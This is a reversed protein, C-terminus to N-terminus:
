SWTGLRMPDGPGDFTPDTLFHLGGYEFLATPGGFVRVAFQRDRFLSFTRLFCRM